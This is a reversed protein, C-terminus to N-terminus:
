TTAWIIYDQVIHYTAAMTDPDIDSLDIENEFFVRQVDVGSTNDGFLGDVATRYDQLASKVQEAVARVGSYTEAFSAVQFRPSRIAPDSIMAHIGPNSIQQYVVFPLSAGQPAILPYIRNSTLATVATTGSLHGYMAQGLTLGM